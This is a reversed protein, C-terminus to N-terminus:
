PASVVLGDPAGGDRPAGGAFLPLTRGGREDGGLATFSPAGSAATVPDGCLSERFARTLACAELVDEGGFADFMSHERAPSRLADPSEDVVVIAPAGIVVERPVSGM